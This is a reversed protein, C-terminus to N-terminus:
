AFWPIQWVRDQHVFNEGIIQPVVRFRIQHTNITITTRDLIEAFFLIPKLFYRVHSSKLQNHYILPYLKKKIKRLCQDILVFTVNLCFWIIWLVGLYSMVLVINTWFPPCLSCAICILGHFREIFNCGNSISKLIFSNQHHNAINQWLYQFIPKVLYRIMSCSFLVQILQLQFKTLTLLLGFLEELYYDKVLDQKVEQPCNSTDIRFNEYIHDESDLTWIVEEILMNSHYSYFLIIPILCLFTYILAIPCCISAM